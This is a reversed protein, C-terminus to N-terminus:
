DNPPTDSLKSLRYNAIMARWLFKTVASLLATGVTFDIVEILSPAFNGHLADAIHFYTYTIYLGGNILCFLGALMWLGRETKWKELMPAATGLAALGMMTYTISWWPARLGFVLLLAVGLILPAFPLITEVDGRLVLSLLEFIGARPKV